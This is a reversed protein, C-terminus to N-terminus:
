CLDMQAVTRGSPKSIYYPFGYFCVVQSNRKQYLNHRTRPIPSFEPRAGPDFMLSVVLAEKLDRGNTWEHIDECGRDKVFGLIVKVCSNTHRSTNVQM